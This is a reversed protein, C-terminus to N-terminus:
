AKKKRFQGLSACTAFHPQVNGAADVDLPIRRKNPTMWMQIVLRCSAGSCRREDMFEYGAARLTETTKPFPM